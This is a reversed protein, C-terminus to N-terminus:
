RVNGQAALQQSTPAPEVHYVNIIGRRPNMKYSDCVEAAREALADRLSPDFSDGALKNVAVAVLDAKRLFQQAKNSRLMGDITEKMKELDASRLTIFADLDAVTKERDIKGDVRVVCKAWSDWNQMTM